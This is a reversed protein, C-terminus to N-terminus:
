GLNKWLGLMQMSEHVILEPSSRKGHFITGHTEVFYGHCSLCQLQRWPQGGPHGNARINGRGLWDHYVCAPDPCFHHHTEVPRPQGRTLVILPPPAGPAQPRTETGIECAECLPQHIYGTFPKLERSRKRRPKHPTVPTARVPTADHDCWLIILLYIMVLAVLLLTYFLPNPSMIVHGQVIIFPCSEVRFVRKRIIRRWFTCSRPPSSM